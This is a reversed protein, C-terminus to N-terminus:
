PAGGGAPQAERTGRPTGPVGPASDRTASLGGNKAVAFGAFCFSSLEDDADKYVYPHAEGLPALSGHLLRLFSTKSIHHHSIYININSISLVFFEDDLFFHSMKVHEVKRGALSSTLFHRMENKIVLKGAKM